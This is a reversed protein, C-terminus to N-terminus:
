PVFPGMKRHAESILSKWACASRVGVVDDLFASDQITSTSYQSPPWLCPIPPYALLTQVTLNGDRPGKKNPSGVDGLEPLAAADLHIVSHLLMLAHACKDGHLDIPIGSKM